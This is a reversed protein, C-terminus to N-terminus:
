TSTINMSSLGESVQNVRDGKRELDRAAAMSEMIALSISERAIGSTLSIIGQTPIGTSAYVEERVQSPSKRGNDALLLRTTGVLVEATMARAQERPLGGAVIGEVIGECALAIFAPTAGCAVSWASMKDEDVRYVNGVFEFFSMVPFTYMGSPEPDTPVAIATVSAEHSAALNPAARFICCRKHSVKPRGGLMSEIQSITLGPVLSVLTKGELAAAMGAEGLVAEVEDPPCDLIVLGSDRAILINCGNSFGVDIFRRSWTREDIGLDQRLSQHNEGSPM